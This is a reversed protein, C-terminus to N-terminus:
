WNDVPMYSVVRRDGHARGGGGHGGASPRSRSWCELAGSTLFPPGRVATPWLDRSFRVWQVGDRIVVMLLLGLHALIRVKYPDQLCTANWAASPWTSGAAEREPPKNM